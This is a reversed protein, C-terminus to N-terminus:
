PAKVAYAEFTDGLHFVRSVFMLLRFLPGKQAPSVFRGLIPFREPHHGTVVTKRLRFGYRKLIRKSSRPRWITFHDTPSNKLFSHLSKRASVGSFSPTSFALVGGDKLLGHIERLIDGPEEFHEIVYWLTIVDFQPDKPRRFEEPLAAPFFGQWCQFGLEEKVYRVADEVPEIGMPAFGGEAAAALFPGYACGIDLLFPKTELLSERLCPSCPPKAGLDSERLCPSCPPSLSNINKEGKHRQAKTHHRKPSNLFKKIFTIRRRGTKKLNAFDELYTKGYQSKYASFFYEREYVMSPPKLRALFIVGCRPCRRFTGEASRALAPLAPKLDRGCAPCAAPSHPRLSGIFSGLDEVQDEELGFSRAIEVTREELTKLFEHDLIDRVFSFLISPVNIIRRRRAETDKHSKNKLFLHRAGSEFGAARALREHYRTPSILLVPLRAYVAEFAGIGFHTILLDYEALHEMLNPIRGMVKVGPIDEENGRSDHPPIQTILTIELPKAMGSKKLFRSIKRATSVGLGADDEAGFSILIKTPGNTASSESKQRRNMPLPLLSPASVNPKHKALSPLLDVLFDFRRRCPGGEDIGILAARGKRAAWFAFEKRGTRFRDLVIFAWSRESLEEESSLFGSHDFSKFFDRFREFFDDKLFAPIWLYTELGRAKLSRLLLLSRSLHGGGRGRECAPVILVSHYTV